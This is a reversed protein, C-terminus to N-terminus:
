KSHFFQCSFRAAFAEWPRLWTGPTVPLFAFFRRREHGFPHATNRSHGRDIWENSGLTHTHTYRRDSTPQSRRRVKNIRKLSMATHTHTNYVHTHTHKGHVVVIYRQTTSVGFSDTLLTTLSFRCRANRGLLVFVRSLPGCPVNGGVVYDCYYLHFKCHVFVLAPHFIVIVRDVGHPVRKPPGPGVMVV